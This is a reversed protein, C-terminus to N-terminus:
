TVERLVRLSTLALVERCLPGPTSGRGPMIDGRWYRRAWEDSDYPGTGKWDAIHQTARPTMLEVEYLVMRKTSNVTANYHGAEVANEFFFVCELRSPLHPFEMLRIREM